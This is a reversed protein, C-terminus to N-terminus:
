RAVSTRRSRRRLANLYVVQAQDLKLEAKALEQLSKTAQQRARSEDATLRAFHRIDDETMGASSERQMYLVQKDRATLQEAAATDVTESAQDVRLKLASIDKVGTTDAWSRQSTNRSLVPVAAPHGSQRREHQCGAQHRRQLNWSGFHGGRKWMSLLLQTGVM